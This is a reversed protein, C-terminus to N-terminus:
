ATAKVTPVKITLGLRAVESGRTRLRDRGNNQMTEQSPDYEVLDREDNRACRPYDFM